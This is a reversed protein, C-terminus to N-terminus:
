RRALAIPGPACSSALTWGPGPGVRCTGAWDRPLEGSQSHPVKDPDRSPSIVCPPRTGGPLSPLAPGPGGDHKVLRFSRLVLHHDVGSGDHPRCIQRLGGRCQLGGNRSPSHPPPPTVPMRIFGFRPPPGGESIGPRPPVVEGPVPRPQSGPKWAVGLGAAWTRFGKRQVGVVTARSPERVVFSRERARWAAEVPPPRSTIRTVLLSFFGPSVGAPESSSDNGSPAHAPRRPDVSRGLCDVKKPRSHM